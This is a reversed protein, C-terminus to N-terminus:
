TQLDVPMKRVLSVVWAIMSPLALFTTEEAGALSSEWTTAMPTLASSYLPLLFKTKHGVAETGHYAMNAFRM